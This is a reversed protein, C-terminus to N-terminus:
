DAMDLVLGQQLAEPLWHVFDFDFPAALDLCRDLTLGSLVASLFTHTGRSILSPTARWPSRHILLYQPQGDPLPENAQSLWRARDAEPAHHGLWIQAVPYISSMIQVDDALRVFVQNLPQSGLGLLSVVDTQGDKARESIHCLWDLKAVDPLYPFADLETQQTLWAPLSRGWHGWDSQSNPCHKVYRSVLVWFAEDGLLSAVTPYTIALARSANALLATPYVSLDAEPCATARGAVLVPLDQDSCTVIPIM